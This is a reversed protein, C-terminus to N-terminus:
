STVATHKSQVKLSHVRMRHSTAESRNLVIARHL